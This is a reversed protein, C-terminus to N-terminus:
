KNERFCLFFNKKLFSIEGHIIILGSYIANRFAPSLKFLEGTDLLTQLVTPQFYFKLFFESVIKRELAINLIILLDEHKIGDFNVQFCIKSFIRWLFFKCSFIRGTEISGRKGSLGGCERSKTSAGIFIRDNFRHSFFIKREFFIQRGRRRQGREDKHVTSLVASVTCKITSPKWNALFDHLEEIARDSNRRVLFFIVPWFILMGKWGFRWLIHFWPMTRRAFDWISWRGFSNSRWHM